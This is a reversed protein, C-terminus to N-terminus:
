EQLFEARVVQVKEPILAFVAPEKGGSEASLIGKYKTICALLKVGTRSGAQRERM